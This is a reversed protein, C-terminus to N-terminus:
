YPWTRPLPRELELLRQLLLLRHEALAPQYAPDNAVDRYERPDSRLDWLCEGGTDHVLYRYHPTRLSKWGAHEMLASGRGEFERGLLAAAFSRGQLHPPVPLGACELLTPLVDVAEVIRSVARGPAAVGEPWGVILPVRSVADDGPYGKGYRLHEGLWEGHDSTFVVITNDALGQQELLDLIRGVYDDVESVMAYYGHRAARLQAESCRLELRRAELEPPYQPLAFTQPDYRDLYRQPVVWPAHPSYFGAICLFPRDAPQRALFELTQEAVFASHTYRADGPFAIPGGFDFRGAETPHRVTDALGM